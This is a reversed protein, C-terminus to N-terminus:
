RPLEYIARRFRLFYYFRVGRPRRARRIWEEWWYVASYYEYHLPPPTIYALADQLKKFANSYNLSPRWHIGLISLFKQWTDFPFLRRQSAKILNSVRELLQVVVRYIYIYTYWRASVRAGSIYRIEFRSKWDDLRAREREREGERDM